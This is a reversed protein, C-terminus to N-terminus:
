GLSFEPIFYLDFKIKKFTYKQATLYNLGTLNKKRFYLLFTNCYQITEEKFGNSKGKKSSILKGMQM